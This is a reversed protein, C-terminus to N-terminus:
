VLKLNSKVKALMEDAMLIDKYSVPTEAKVMKTLNSLSESIEDINDNQFARLLNLLQETYIM